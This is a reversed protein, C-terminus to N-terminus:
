KGYLKIQPNPTVERGSISFATREGGCKMTVKTMFFTEGGIHAQEATKLRTRQVVNEM